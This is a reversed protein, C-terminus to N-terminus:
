LPLYLVKWFLVKLFNSRLTPKQVMGMLMFLALTVHIEEENVPKWERTRSRLPLLIERSKTRCLYKNRENNRLEQIFFMKLVNAGETM